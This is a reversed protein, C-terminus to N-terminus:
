CYQILLSGSVTRHHGPGRYPEYGECHSSAVHWMSFATGLIIQLFHHEIKIVRQLLENKGKQLIALAHFLQHVTSEYLPVCLRDKRAIRHTTTAGYVQLSKRWMIILHQAWPANCVCFICFMVCLYVCLLITWILELETLYDKCGQGQWPFRENGDSSTALYDVYILRLHSPYFVRISPISGM